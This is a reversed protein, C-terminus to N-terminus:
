TLITYRRQELQVLTKLEDQFINLVALSFFAVTFMIPQLCAVRFREDVGLPHFVFALLLATKGM